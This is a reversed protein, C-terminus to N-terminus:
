RVQAVIEIDEIECGVQSVVNMMVGETELTVTMIKDMATKM